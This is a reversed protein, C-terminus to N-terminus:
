AVAGMKRPEPEAPPKPLHLKEARKPDRKWIETLAARYAGPEEHGEREAKRIAAFHNATEHGPSGIGQEILNGKRDKKADFGFVNRAEAEYHKEIADAPLKGQRIMEQMEAIEDPTKTVM